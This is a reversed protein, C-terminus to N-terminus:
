SLSSVPLASKFDGHWCRASAVLALSVGPLWSLAPVPLALIISRHQASAPLALQPSCHWSSLALGIGAHWPRSSALLAMKPVCWWFWASVLLELSIGPHWSSAAMLLALKPVCHWSMASAPLVM